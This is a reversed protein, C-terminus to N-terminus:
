RLKQNEDGWDAFDMIISFSPVRVRKTDLWDPWSKLWCTTNPPPVGNCLACHPNKFVQSLVTSSDNASSQTMM